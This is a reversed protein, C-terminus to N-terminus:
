VYTVDISVVFTRLPCSVPVPVVFPPVPKLESGQWHRMVGVVAVLPKSVLYLNMAGHFPHALLRQLLLELTRCHM